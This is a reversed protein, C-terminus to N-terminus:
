LWSCSQRGAAIVGVMGTPHLVSVMALPLPTNLLLSSPSFHSRFSLSQESRKTATPSWRIEKNGWLGEWWTFCHGWVGWPSPDATSHEQSVAGVCLGTGGPAAHKQSTLPLAAKHPKIKHSKNLCQQSSEGSTSCALSLNQLCREQMHLSSSIVAHTLEGNCLAPSSLCM